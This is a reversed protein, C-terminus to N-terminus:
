RLIEKLVWNWWLLQMIYSAEKGGSCFLGNLIYIVKAAPHIYLLSLAFGLNTFLSQKHKVEFRLTAFRLSTKKKKRKM